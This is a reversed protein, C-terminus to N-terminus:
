ILFIESTETSSSSWSPYESDSPNHSPPTTSLCLIYKIKIEDKVRNHNLISRSRTIHHSSLMHAIFNYDFYLASSYLNPSYARHQTLSHPHYIDWTRCKM